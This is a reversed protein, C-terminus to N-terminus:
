CSPLLIDHECESSSGPQDAREFLMVQNVNGDSFYTSICTQMLEDVLVPPLLAHGDCYLGPIPPASRIAPITTMQFPAESDPTDKASTDAEVEEDFLSDLSEQDSDTEEDVQHSIDTDCRM